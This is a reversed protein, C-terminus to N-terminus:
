KQLHSNVAINLLSQTHVQEEDTNKFDKKQVRFFVKKRYWLADKLCLSIHLIQFIIIFVNKQQKLNKM